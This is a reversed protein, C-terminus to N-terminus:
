AAELLREWTTAAFSPRARVRDLWATLPTGALMSAGEPAESLMDLHTAAHIDGLSLADGAVYPRGDAFFGALVDICRQATEVAGAVAAEDVPIGLRPGVVRHFGITMASGPAFVYWDVIGMVQNMRAAAKPDAPTLSPGTRSADIYRIIAQTEYVVFGDDDIAPVRGFPHRALHEPARHQGPVVPALRYPTGKELCTAVAARGFPSGVISHVTIM